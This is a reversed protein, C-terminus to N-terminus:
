DAATGTKKRERADTTATLRRTARDVKGDGLGDPGIHDKTVGRNDRKGLADLIKDATIPTEDFRVGIADYVANAIAPIVSNLPGEGAELYEFTIGNAAVRGRGLESM